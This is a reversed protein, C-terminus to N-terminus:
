LSKVKDLLEDISLETLAENKKNDILQLLKAKTAAKEIKSENDVKEKLKVDIIHKVIDFSLLLREDVDKNDSIFSVDDSEKLQRHITRAINDLSELSLSWLDETNAVGNILNFRLKLRSAKEFM